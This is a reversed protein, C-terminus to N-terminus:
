WLFEKNLVLNYLGSHSHDECDTVCPLSTLTFGVLISDSSPSLFDGGGPTWYNWKWIRPVESNCAYHLFQIYSYTLLLVGCFPNNTM